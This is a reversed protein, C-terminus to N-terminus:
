RSSGDVSSSMQVRGIGLDHCELPGGDIEGFPLQSPPANRISLGLSSASLRAAGTHASSSAASRPMAPPAVGAPRSHEAISRSRRERLLDDLDHDPPGGSPRVYPWPNVDQPVREARVQRHTSRRRPGDLFQGSVLVQARRLAVHVQARGCEVRRNPQQLRAGFRASCGHLFLPPPPFPPNFSVSLRHRDVKAAKGSRHAFTARDHVSQHRAVEPALANTRHCNGSNASKVATGSLCGLDVRNKSPYQLRRSSAGAAASCCSLRHGGATKDYAQDQQSGGM